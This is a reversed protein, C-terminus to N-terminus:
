SENREKKTQKHIYKVCDFILESESFYNFSEFELDSSWMSNDYKTVKFLKCYFQINDEGINDEFIDISLSYNQKIVWQKCSTPLDCVKMFITNVNGEKKFEFYGTGLTTFQTIKCDLVIELVEKM